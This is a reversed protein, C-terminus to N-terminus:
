GDGACRTQWSRAASCAGQRGARLWGQAPRGLPWCPRVAASQTTWTLPSALQGRGIAPVQRGAMTPARHSTTVLESQVCSPPPSWPTTRTGAALAPPHEGAHHPLPAPAAAPVAPSVCLSACRGALRHRRPPCGQSPPRRASRASRSGLRKPPRHCRTPYPPRQQRSPPPPATGRSASATRSTPQPPRLRRTKPARGAPCSRTPAPCSPPSTPQLPAARLGRATTPTERTSRRPQANAALAPGDPPAPAAAARSVNLAHTPPKRTAALWGPLANRHASACPLSFRCPMQHSSAACMAGSELMARLVTLRPQELCCAHVFLCWLRPTATPSATSLAPTSLAGKGPPSPLLSLTPCHNCKFDRFSIPQFGFRPRLPLSSPSRSPGTCLQPPPLPLLPHPSASALAWRHATSAM